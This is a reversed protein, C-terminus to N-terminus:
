MKLKMRCLYYIKKVYVFILLFKTNFIYECNLCYLEVFIMGFLVDTLHGRNQAM